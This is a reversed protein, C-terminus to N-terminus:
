FVIKVDRKVQMRTHGAVLAVTERCPEEEQCLTRPSNALEERHLAWDQELHSFSRILRMYDQMM